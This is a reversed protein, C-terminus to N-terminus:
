RNVLYECHVVIQIEGTHNGVANGATCRYTGADSYMTKDIKLERKQVQEVIAQSKADPYKPEFEWYQTTINEPNGVEINCTIVTQSGEYIPSSVRQVSVEPPDANSFFFM